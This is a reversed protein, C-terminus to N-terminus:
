FRYMAGIRVVPFVKYKDLEDQLDRQEQALNQQFIPDSSLPGDAALTVKASGSFMVGLTAFLGFGRRQPSMAWGLGVYPTTGHALEGHATLNGVLAAPYTVGNFDYTAGARPTGVADVKNNAFIAGGSLHFSGKFPHWNLLAHGNGLRAKGSYDAEDTSYDHNINVAAYGLSITVSPAATIWLSGGIGTTGADVSLAYPSVTTTVSQARGLSALAAAAFVFCPVISKM